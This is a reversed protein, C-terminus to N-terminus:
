LPATQVRRVPNAASTIGVLSPLKVGRSSSVDPLYSPVHTHGTNISTSTSTSTPDCTRSPSRESPMAITSEWTRTGDSQRLSEILSELDERDLKGPPRGFTSPPDTCPASTSTIDIDTHPSVNSGVGLGVGPGLCPLRNKTDLTDSYERDIHVSSMHISECSDVGISSEDETEEYYYEEILGKMTDLGGQKLIKGLRRSSKTKKKTVSIEGIRISGGLDTASTSGKPHRSLSSLTSNGGVTLDHIYHYTINHITIRNSTM